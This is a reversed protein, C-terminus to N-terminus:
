ISSIFNSVDANNYYKILKKKNYIFFIFHSCFIINTLVICKNDSSSLFRIIKVRKQKDVMSIEQQFGHEFTGFFHAPVEM